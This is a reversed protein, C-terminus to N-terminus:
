EYLPSGNEDLTLVETMYNLFPRMLGYTEVVKDMFTEDLVEENTFHRLLMFQKHRILDIRPHTKDFDKPTTKVQEGHLGGFAAIIEPQSLIVALDDERQIAKRIRLLDDKNPEWFGAAVFSNGPEIHVYFSGRNQPQRRKYIGGFHTKYPTKDKSFRVDRYIRYMRYKEIDDVASLRENLADYFAQATNKVAEYTSKQAQFWDRDNNQALDSLFHFVAIQM